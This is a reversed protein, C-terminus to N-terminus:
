SAGEAVFQLLLRAPGGKAVVASLGPAGRIPLAIWSPTHSSSFPGAPDLVQMAAVHSHVTGKKEDEGEEV